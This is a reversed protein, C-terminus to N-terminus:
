RCPVSRELLLFAANLRDARRRDAAGRRAVLDGISSPFAARTVRASPLAQGAHRRRCSPYDIFPEHIRPAFLARMTTHPAGVASGQMARLPMIDRERDAIRAGDQAQASLRGDPSMGDILGGFVRIQAEAM